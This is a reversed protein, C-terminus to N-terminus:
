HTKEMAYVAQEMARTAEKLTDSTMRGAYASLDMPAGFTLNVRRFLRARGDIYVPVVAAGSKLAIMAAGSQFAKGGKWTRTGQPFIGMVNGEKLISLSLRVAALDGAGRDVPFGGLWKILGGLLPVGFLEKKAMFRIKRKQSVAMMIPDSLSQHNACLIVAGSQPVNEGGAAKFPFFVAFFGRVLASLLAYMKDSIM